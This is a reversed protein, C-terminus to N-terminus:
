PMSSTNTSSKSVASVELIHFAHIIEKGTLKTQIFSQEADVERGFLKDKMRSAQRAAQVFTQRSLERDKEALRGKM